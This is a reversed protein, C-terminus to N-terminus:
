PTTIRGTGGTLTIDTSGNSVVSLTTDNAISGLHNFTITLSGPSLTAGSVSHTSLVTGIANRIEYTTSSTVVLSCSGGQSMSYSQAMRLDHAVRRAVGVRDVENPFLPIASVALLGLVVVVMILEILTFGSKEIDHPKQM